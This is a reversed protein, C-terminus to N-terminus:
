IPWAKSAHRHGINYTHMSLNLSDAETWLWCLHEKDIKDTDSVKLTGTQSTAIPVEFIGLHILVAVQSPM